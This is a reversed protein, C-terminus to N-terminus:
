ENQFLNILFFLSSSLIIFCCITRIKNITNIPIVFMTNLLSEHLHQKTNVLGVQSVREISEHKCHVLPHHSFLIFQHAPLIGGQKALHLGHFLLIGYNENV